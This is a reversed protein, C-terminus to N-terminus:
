RGFLSDSLYGANLGRRRVRASIIIASIIILFVLGVWSGLFELITIIIPINSIEYPLIDYLSSENIAGYLLAWMILVSAIAGIRGFSEYSFKLLFGFAILVAVVLAWAGIPGGGGIGRLLDRQAITISIFLSLALAVVGAVPPNKFSRNVTYFIVAFFVLFILSFM